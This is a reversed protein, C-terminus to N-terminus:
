KGCKFECQLKEEPCKAEHDSIEKRVYFEGCHCCKVFFKPCKAFHGKLTAFGKCVISECKFPCVVRQFTCIKIHEDLEAATGKWTCKQEKLTTKSTCKVQQQRILRRITRSKVSEKLDILGECGASLCKVKGGNEVIASNMTNQLCKECIKGLCMDCDLEMTNRPINKCVVCFAVLKDIDTLSLFSSRPFGTSDGHGVIEFDFAGNSLQRIIDEPDLPLLSLVLETEESLKYTHLTVKNCLRQKDLHIIQTAIPIKTMEMIRAKLDSVTIASSAALYIEEGSPVKVSLTFNDYMEPEEASSM